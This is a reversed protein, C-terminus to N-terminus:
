SMFETKPIPSFITNMQPPLFSHSPSEAPTIDEDFESKFSKTKAESNNM